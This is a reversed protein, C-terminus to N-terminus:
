SQLLHISLRDTSRASSAPSHPKSLSSDRGSKTNTDSLTWLGFDTHRSGLFVFLAMTKCRSPMPMLYLYLFGATIKGWLIYLKM